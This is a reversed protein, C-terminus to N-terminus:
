KLYVLKKFKDYEDANIGGDGDSDAFKFKSTLLKDGTVEKETLKGDKNADLKGFDGVTANSAPETAAAPTAEASDAAYAPALFCSMSLALVSYVTRVDKIFAFVHM